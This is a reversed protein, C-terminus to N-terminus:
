RAPVPAVFDSHLWGTSGDSMPVGFWAGSTHSPIFETGQEARAVIAASATPEERVNLAEATVYFRSPAPPPEDDDDDGDIISCGVMLILLGPVSMWRFKKDGSM